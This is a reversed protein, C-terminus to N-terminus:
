PTCPLSWGLSTTAAAISLGITLKGPKIHSHVPTAGWIMQIIRNSLKKM